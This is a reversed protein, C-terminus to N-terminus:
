ITKSSVIYSFSFSSSLAFLFARATSVVHGARGARDARNTVDVGARANQFERRDIEKSVALVRQTLERAPVLRLM